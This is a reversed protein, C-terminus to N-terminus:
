GRIINRHILEKIKKEAKYCKQIANARKSESVELQQKLFGSNLKYLEGKLTENYKLVEEESKYGVKIDLLFARELPEKFWIAQEFPMERIFYREAVKLVRIAHHAEKCNYGFEEILHQTDLTSHYIKNIKQKNTGMCADYFRQRNATIFDKRTPLLIEELEKDMQFDQSFLVELFNINVKNLLNILQRLDHVTYDEQPSTYSCSFFNNNYLDDFSPYVFYKYDKDSTATNLNYNHSGVLAKIAIKRGNTNIKAMQTLKKM